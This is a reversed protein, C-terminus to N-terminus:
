ISGDTYFDIDISGNNVCDNYIGADCHIDDERHVMVGKGGAFNSLTRFSEYIPCRFVYLM